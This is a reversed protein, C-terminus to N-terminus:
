TVLTAPNSPAMFFPEGAYIDEYLTHVAPEASREAFDVSEKSIEEAARDQAAARADDWHGAEKMLTELILIPDQERKYKEVEERTRYKQPDSMSHGKYRYTRAEILVPHGERAEALARGAADRVELVDMGDVLEGRMGYATAMVSFDDVSSVRKWSTGMGWQNNECVSVLPLNWIKALNMAEHFAGQHIAGDGFFVVTAGGTKLYKQAFAVGAAVPIQAGVIGNGGLFHRQADFLHMSGGKGRSCGTVKGFLEAMIARPEMGAALAHGHDRYGTLVYDRSYDLVSGFGAAIAEQGNYLHCFGGIKRLGYMQGAKEEFVRMLVMNNRLEWLLEGNLEKM